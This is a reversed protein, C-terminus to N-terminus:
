GHPSLARLIRGANRDLVGAPEAREMSRLVLKTGRRPRLARGLADGAQFHADGMTWLGEATDRQRRLPIRDHQREGPDVAHFEAGCVAEDWDFCSTASRTRM